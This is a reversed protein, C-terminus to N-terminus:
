TRPSYRPHKRHPATWQAISPDSLMGMALSSLTVGEVTALNAPIIFNGLTGDAYAVTVVYLGGGRDTVETVTLPLKSM